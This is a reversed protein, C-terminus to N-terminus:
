MLDRLRAYAMGLVLAPTRLAAGGPFPLHKLKAFVDFRSADGAIAEAVLKGALGTLALGHGSFGQLYYVKDGFERLRGFDPARSISIDVFGGWAYEAQVGRLQPFTGHMRTAMSAALDMPTRTSYSVRGGYLMRHDPTTRFYDLVFNNDCVGAGCPILSAALEPAVPQSCVIYTGVPMIRASLCPALTPSVAQLYVNGALLVHRARLTASTNTKLHVGAADQHMATVASGEHLAAGASAAAKGLGRTYKLPHLHGSRPDHAAAVYRPSDIWRPLDNQAVWTLAHDYRSALLDVEDRLARAKRANMAVGLYGDRWDCDIAFRSIRERILDIAEISMAFVQRAADSGLQDEITTIDCALGYIAQGGNRGSAGHGITHAELLTVAFGRQRLEIAASLGALGGGVVAVDCAHEGAPLPAFAQTRPATAAYYSHRTLERDTDVFSM